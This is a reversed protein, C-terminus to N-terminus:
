EEERRESRRHERVVSRRRAPSLHDLYLNGNLHDIEHQIARALIGEGTIQVRDGELTTGAITARSWRSVPASTGPVSLCGESLEEREGEVSVLEPNILVQLRGDVDLVIVRRSVGIQPAALGAGESRIMAELMKACLARVDDDIVDVPEAVRRLVPDGFRRLESPKGQM